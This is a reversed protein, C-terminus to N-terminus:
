RIRAWGQVKVERTKGERPKAETEAEFELFIVQLKRREKKRERRSSM